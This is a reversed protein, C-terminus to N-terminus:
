QESNVAGQESGGGELFGNLVRDVVFQFGPPIVYTTDEAEVIAPGRVCNGPRLHDREYLPTALRGVQPGWYVERAGKRAASPDPGAPAHEVQTFHPITAIARLTLSTIVIPEPGDLGAGRRCTEALRLLDAPTAVLAEPSTVAVEGAQSHVLLELEYRVSDPTFGEGRMDRQARAIFPQVIANFREPSTPTTGNEALTLLTPTSYTHMVDMTSSSFACFVPSYPTTLARRAGLAALLGAAHTAGAGGYVILVTDRLTAAALGNAEALRRINAATAEDVTQKIRWAAEDLSCGLRTATKQVAARARDRNLRMRGGLFYAPNVYGLVVDADTVTAETGGLDFCAPGPLAGASQPGVQLRGDSTVSAISGGAGGFASVRIMPLNVPVDSIAPALDYDVRNGAIVGVDVSTGGIDVSIARPLDYGEALARAGLVGAVPGSNYTNLASTKAVRAAGGNNHVVLLPRAYGVQRIQEEGKYLSRSLHDHVYANLVATNLRLADGPRATTESAPFAPISGLYYNPYEAKITRKVLQENAPNLGGTALCIVIAQAGRDILDQLRALVVEPDPPQLVEGAAGVQEAIGAVMEPAVFGGRVVPPATGGAAYLDAEHGATVVLGLKSGNHQIIANTAITSSFRIVGTQYLLDPLSLGFREAGSKICDLFCVTLDHPTTPVKVMEVRSEAQDTFFGDTFTGGTDIDITFRM